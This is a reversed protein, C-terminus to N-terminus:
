MTEMDQNDQIAGALHVARGTLRFLAKKLSVPALLM